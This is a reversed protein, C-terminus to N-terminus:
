KWAEPINDYDSLGTAGYYMGTFISEPADPWKEYFYQGGTRASAGSLGISGSFTEAFSNEYAYEMANSLNFVVDGFLNDPIETLSPCNSFTWYFIGGCYYEPDLMDWRLGAFLNNPLTELRECESFTGEFVWSMHLYDRELFSDFLNEPISTIPTNSFTGAFTSEATENNWVINAFLKEPISTINTGSFTNKFTGYDSCEIGAFLNEPISTIPTSEFTSMFTDFGSVTSLSSFLGAPIETINTGSFTGSFMSSGAFGVNAFLNEPISTIPTNSFTRSFAGVVFRQTSLDAFLNEPIATINTDFFAYEFMARTFDGHLGAFLGDPITTIPSYNLLWSFSPNTGDPLTPFICGLCGSIETVCDAYGYYDCEFKFGYGDVSTEPAGTALGGFKINYKGPSAYMHIIGDPNTVYETPSGDGWNIFFDGNARANFDFYFGSKPISVTAFFKYDNSDMQVLTEVAVDTAITDAAFLTAYEGNGYNTNTRLMENAVDVTTLLYKMNAAVRPNTLETNYPVTIDWKQKIANHIYEVNVVQASQAVGCFLMFLFLVLKKMM